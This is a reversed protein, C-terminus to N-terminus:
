KRTQAGKLHKVLHLKKGDFDLVLCRSMQMLSGLNWVTKEGVRFCGPRHFHGCVLVQAEPCFRTLFREGERAFGAWVRVVAFLRQPPWLALKLYGWFNPAMKKDPRLLRGVGQACQWRDILSSCNQKGLYSAVRERRAFLERSWPSATDYIMDGHTVLIAEERLFMWGESSADPDHNGTLAIFKINRERCLTQLGEWLQDAQQRWGEVLEERGDGVMVLTGVGDLFSEIQTLSQVQSAPHGLHWDSILRLPLPLEENRTTLEALVTKVNVEM